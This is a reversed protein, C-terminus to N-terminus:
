YDYMYNIEVDLEHECYDDPGVGQIYILKGLIKFNNVLVGDFDFKIDRYLDTDKFKYTALTSFQIKEDNVSISTEAKEVSWHPPLLVSYLLILEGEEYIFRGLGTDPLLFSCRQFSGVPIQNLDEIVVIRWKGETFKLCGEKIEDETKEICYEIEKDYQLWDTMFGSSNYVSQLREIVGLFKFFKGMYSTEMSPFLKAYTENSTNDCNKILSSIQEYRDYIFRIVDVSLKWGSRSNNSFAKINSALGEAGSGGDYLFEGIGKMCDIGKIADRLTTSFIGLVDAGVNRMNYYAAQQNEETGDFSLGSKAKISYEGVGPIPLSAKNQSNGNSWLGNTVAPLTRDWLPVGSALKQALHQDQDDYLAAMYAVSSKRNIVDVSNENRKFVLPDRQDVSQRTSHSYEQILEEIFLDLNTIDLNGEKIAKEVEKQYAEFGPKSGMARYIWDKDEVSLDYTWPHMLAIARATSHSDLYISNEKSPNVYAAMVMDGDENNVMILELSNDDFTTAHGIANNINMNESFISNVKLESLEYISNEPLQIQVETITQGSELQQLQELVQNENEESNDDISDNDVSCSILFILILFYILNKM